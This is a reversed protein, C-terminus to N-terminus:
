YLTRETDTDGITGLIIARKQNIQRRRIYALNAQYDAVFIQMMAQAEQQHGRELWAKYAALYTNSTHLEPPIQLADSDNALETPLRWYSVYIRGNASNFPPYTGLQYTGSEGWLYYAEPKPASTRPHVRAYEIDVIPTETFTDTSTSRMRVTRVAHLNPPMSYLEQDLVSATFAETALLPEENGVPIGPPTGTAIDFQAENIYATLTADLWYQATPEQLLLRIRTRQAALTNPTLAM